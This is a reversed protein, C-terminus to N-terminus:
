KVEQGQANFTRGDRLILFQGDRLLKQTSLESQQSSIAEIATPTTAETSVDISYLKLAAEPEEDAKARAPAPNTSSARLFIHVLTPESFECPINSSGSLPGEAELITRGEVRAILTYGAALDLNLSINIKAAPLKLSVGPLQKFAEDGPQSTALINDVEEDSLTVTSNMAVYGGGTGAVVKDGEALTIAVKGDNDTSGDFTIETDKGVPLVEAEPAKGFTFGVATIRGVAANALVVASAGYGAWVLKNAAYTWGSEKALKTEEENVVGYIVIRSLEGSLPAFTLTGNGWCWLSANNDKDDYVFHSYDGEAPAAASVTINDITPNTGILDGGDRVFINVNQLEKQDWMVDSVVDPEITFVISEIPGANFTGSGPLSALVVLAEKGEWILQETEDNWDWGTTKDMNDIGYADNCTIVIRTLEGSEHMFSLSGGNSMSFDAWDDDNLKGNSTDFHCYEDAKYDALNTVTIGKITQRSSPCPVPSCMPVDITALDADDWTITENQVPDVITFVISTIAGSDVFGSSSKGTMVAAAANGKWILQRTSSDWSWGTSTELNDFNSYGEGLSIVIGSLNGLSSSFTLTGGGDILFSPYGDLNSYGFQCYDTNGGGTTVTVDKVTESDHNSYGNDWNIYFNIDSQEWTVTTARASISLALLATLLTFTKKM